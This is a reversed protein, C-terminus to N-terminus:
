KLNLGNIIILLVYVGICCLQLVGVSSTYIRVQINLIITFIAKLIFGCAVGNKTYDTYFQMLSVISSSWM